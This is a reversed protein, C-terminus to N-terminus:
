FPPKIEWLKQRAADTRAKSLGLDLAQRLDAAAPETQELQAYLLGRDYLTNAKFRKAEADQPEPACHKLAVDYDGLAEERRGLKELVKARQTRYRPTRPALAVARDFDVLAESWRKAKVLLQARNVLAFTSTPDHELSASFAALAERDRGRKRLTGGLEGHGKATRQAESLKLRKWGDMLRAWCARRARLWAPREDAALADDYAILARVLEGERELVHAYAALFEDRLEPQHGGESLRARLIEHAEALEGVLARRVAQELLERASSSSSVPALSTRVQELDLGPPPDFLADVGYAEPRPAEAEAPPAVIERPPAGGSRALTAALGVGLAALGCLGAIWRARPPGARVHLPPLAALAQALQFASAYREAPEKHLCRTVIAELGPSVEPRLARVSRAPDAVVRQLIALPGGRPDVPPAATLLFFLTAGLGYLDAAPGIETDGTAQEPAMYVPTGVVTGSTTLAPGVRHLRKALGFDILVPQGVATLVVNGPKLDRHLVGRQHAHALAESLRQGLYRVDAEPLPGARRVVQEVNEGEVLPTVLFPVGGSTVGFERAPLIGPHSLETLVQAERRFRQLAELDGRGSTVLKIAVREGTRLDQARYVAGMGGSGLEEDI